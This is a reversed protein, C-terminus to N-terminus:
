NAAPVKRDARTDVSYAAKPRSTVPTKAGAGGNIGEAVGKGLKRCIKRLEEQEEPELVSLERAIDDAHQPFIREILRRGESTLQIQIMRRDEVQRERRVWGRKELNNVVVTVDGGSRLLKGALAKQCMPGLHYIAELVGFQATTLGHAEIKANLRAAVSDTARVLNIFANLARVQREPGNHRTPM